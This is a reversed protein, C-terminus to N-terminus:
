LRLNGGGGNRGSSRHFVQLTFACIDGKTQAASSQILSLLSVSTSGASTRVGKDWRNGDSGLKLSTDAHGEKSSTELPSLLTSRWVAM